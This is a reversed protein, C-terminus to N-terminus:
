LQNNPKDIKNGKEYLNLFYALALASLISIPIGMLVKETTIPMKEIFLLIIINILFLMISM